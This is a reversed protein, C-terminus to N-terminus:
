PFPPKFDGTVFMAAIGGLIGLFVVVKIVLPDGFIMTRYDALNYIRAIKEAGDLFWTWWILLSWLLVLLSVAIERFPSHWYLFFPHSDQTSALQLIWFALCPVFLWFLTRVSILNAEHKPVKGASVAKQLKVRLFISNGCGVWVACALWFHEFLIRMRGEFTLACPIAASASM